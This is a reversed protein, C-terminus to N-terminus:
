WMLNRIPNSEQDVVSLKNWCLVVKLGGAPSVMKYDKQEMGIVYKQGGHAQTAVAPIMILSYATSRGDMVPSPPGHIWFIRCSVGAAKTRATAYAQTHGQLTGGPPRRSNPVHKAFTVTTVITLSIEILIIIIRELFLLINKIHSMM